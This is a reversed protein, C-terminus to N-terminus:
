CIKVLIMKVIKISKMKELDNYYKGIVGISYNRIIM